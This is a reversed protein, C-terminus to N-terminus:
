PRMVEQEIEKLFKSSWKKMRSIFRLFRPKVNLRGNISTMLREILVRLLVWLVVMVGGLGGVLYALLKSFILLGDKM